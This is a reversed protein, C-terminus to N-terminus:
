DFVSVTNPQSLQSALRAERLFRRVGMAERSFARDILKVAVERGVSRQWARYVVGMGGQGLKDRIEFRGDIVTGIVDDAEARIQVLKAGCKPCNALEEAVESDCSPCIRHLVHPASTVPQSRVHGLLRGRRR